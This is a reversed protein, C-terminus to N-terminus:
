VANPPLNGERELMSRFQLFNRIKQPASKVPVPIPAPQREANEELDAIRAELRDVAGAMDSLEARLRSLEEIQAEIGLWNVIWAKLWRMM